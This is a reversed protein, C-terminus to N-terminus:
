NLTLCGTDGIPEQVAIRPLQGQVIREWGLQFPRRLVCSAKGISVCEMM